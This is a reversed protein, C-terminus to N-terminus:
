RMVAKITKGDQRIIIIGSHPITKDLKRGDPSYMEYKRDFDIGTNRDTVDGISSTSATGSVSINKIKWQMNEATTSRYHFAVRIKKGAFADLSIDGSNNFAWSNGAPWTFGTLPTAQGDCIIEVDLVDQPAHTSRHNVAHTFSLSAGAYETLDIEPSILSADSDHSSNDYYATAIWGYQNDRRWVNFGEYPLTSANQTFGGGDTTFDVQLINEENPDPNDGGGDDIYEDAKVTTEPDFAYTISDGWVYEMLNPFDVFPNRNGQIKSVENNRKIELEDVIDTKAWEIYLTYAWEKLTPYDGQTLIQNAQTGSWTLNQYATAMYMYGRAFDGKWKDAPEWLQYGNTGTGIRTCGNDTTVTTVKGMPYNQKSSNIKEECPMLNYLDKYAQNKSGGWWSKPFSHEINMGSVASGKAGFYRKDNSYRDIVMGDEAQDTSYFGYWTTGNGNGYDLVKANKIIEHIANKLEAGKKGKLSAYYGAPIQATATLATTAMVFIAAATKFDKRMM